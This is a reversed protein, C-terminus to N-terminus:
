NVEDDLVDMVKRKVSFNKTYYVITFLCIEGIMLWYHGAFLKDPDSLFYGAFHNGLFILLHSGIFLILLSNVFRKQVKKVFLLVFLLICIGTNMLAFVSGLGNYTTYFGGGFFGGSQDPNPYQRIYSPTEDEMGDTMTEYHPLTIAFFLSILILGALIKPLHQQM